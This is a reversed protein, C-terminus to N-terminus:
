KWVDLRERGSATGLERREEGLREKEVVEKIGKALESKEILDWVGGRQPQGGLGMLGLGGEGDGGAVSSTESALGSGSGVTSGGLSYKRLGLESEARETNRVCCKFIERSLRAFELDNPPVNVDVCRVVENMKLGVSLAMVGALDLTNQTLDLHLLSRADPLFEALAIAGSSNLGTNSLFLRKLSTNITFATRVSTVGELAPGCCPNRSM